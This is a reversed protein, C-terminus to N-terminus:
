ACVPEKQVHISIAAFHLICDPFCCWDVHIHLYSLHAPMVNKKKVWRVSQRRSRPGLINCVEGHCQLCHRPHAGQNRCEDKYLTAVTVYKEQLRIRATTRSSQLALSDREFYEDAQMAGIIDAVNRPLTFPSKLRRSNALPPSEFSLAARATKEKAM